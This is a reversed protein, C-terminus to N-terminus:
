YEEEVFFLNGMADCIFTENKNNILLFLDDAKINNEFDSYDEETDFVQKYVQKSLGKIHNGKENYLDFSHETEMVFFSNKSFFLKGEKEIELKENESNIYVLISFLVNERVITENKVFNIM